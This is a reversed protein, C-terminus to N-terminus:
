TKASYKKEITRRAREGLLERNEFANEFLKSLIIPNRNSNNLLIGNYGDVIVEKAGVNDTSVIALGSAMAELLSVSLGERISTM